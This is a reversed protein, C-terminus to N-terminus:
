DSTEERIKCNCIGLVFKSISRRNLNYGQITRHFWAPINREFKVELISYGPKYKIPFSFSNKTFLYNSKTSVLNSDFTLRFYLGNKNVLPKRNYDILIQPKINKKYVDYVFENILNNNKYKNLLVDLNKLSHFYILDDNDIRFRNKLVRDQRRGKMELYIPNKDKLENSYTRLRFKKRVKFGEVKEFFNHYESNDFYLSRVFYGKDKSVHEDKKMFNQAENYLTNSIKNNVFYKFEYRSFIQNDKM